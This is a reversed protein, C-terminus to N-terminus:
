KFPFTAEGKYFVSLLQQESGNRQVLLVGRGALNSVLNASLHRGNPQYIRERVLPLQIQKQQQQQKEKLM